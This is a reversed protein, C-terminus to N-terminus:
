SFESNIVVLPETRRKCLSESIDLIVHLGTHGHPNSQPDHRQGEYIGLSELGRDVHTFVM